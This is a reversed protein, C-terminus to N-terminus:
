LEFLDAQHEEVVPEICRSTENRPSNVLTSVARVALLDDPFPRLLELRGQPPLKVNLWDSYSSKSLIVPMRDHIPEVIANPKTTLITCTREGVGSAGQWEEWIGAFAFLGGDALSFYRPRRLGGINVWEYFGNAPVLCPRNKAAEKFTNKQFVTEARANIFRRATKSDPSDAPLLGWNLAGWRREGDRVLVAGIRQSPAINYRAPMEADIGVEFHSAVDSSPTHLSYRGCM